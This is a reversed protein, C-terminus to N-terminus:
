FPTFGFIKLSFLYVFFILGISKLGRAPLSRDAIARQLSNPFFVLAAGLSALGLSAIALGFIPLSFWPRPASLIDTEIPSLAVDLASVGLLFALLGAIVFALRPLPFGGFIRRASNSRVTFDQLRGLALLVPQRHQALLFIGLTLVIVLGAIGSPYGYPLEFLQWQIFSVLGVGEGM